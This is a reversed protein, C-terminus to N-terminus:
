DTMATVDRDPPALMAQLRDAAERDGSALSHAYLGLTMALSTHGLYLGILIKGLTFLVATMAAGPWLHRWSLHVAPM